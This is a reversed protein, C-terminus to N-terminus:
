TYPLTDSTCHVPLEANLNAAFMKWEDSCVSSNSVPALSAEKLGIQKCSM